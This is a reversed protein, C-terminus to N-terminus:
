REMGRRPPQPANSKEIERRRKAEQEAQELLAQGRKLYEEWKQKQRAKEAKRAEFREKAGEIGSELRKLESLEKEIVASASHSLAQRNVDGRFTRVGRREMASVTPGLHRTPKRNIGQAKLSHRSVRERVGILSLADNCLQEWIERVANVEQASTKPSDLIRTKDGFRGNAFSRTTTLLHAHHNRDDGKKGPAHICVDVVIGYRKALAQAFDRSLTMREALRMEAPLALEWERAVKADKRKEAAEAQNWLESRSLPQEGEPFVLERHLIGRKRRYDHIEGTRDDIIREGARYAAAAIASRGTARSIAKASCHFIM